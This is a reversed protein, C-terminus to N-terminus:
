TPREAVTCPVTTTFHLQLFSCKVKPGVAVTLWGSGTSRSRWFRVPRVTLRKRLRLHNASPLGDRNLNVPQDPLISQISLGLDTIPPSRGMGSRYHTCISGVALFGLVKPSRRPSIPWTGSFLHTEHFLPLLRPFHSFINTSRFCHGIGTMVSIFGTMHTASPSIYVPHIDPIM